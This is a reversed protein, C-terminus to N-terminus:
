TELSRPELVQVDQEKLGFQTSSGVTVMQTVELNKNKNESEQNEYVYQTLKKCYVRETSICLTTETKVLYFTGSISNLNM